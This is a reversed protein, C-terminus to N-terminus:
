SIIICRITAKGQRSYYWDKVPFRAVKTNSRPGNIHVAQWKIKIDLQYTEDQEIIEVQNRYLHLQQM